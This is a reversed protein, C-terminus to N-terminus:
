WSIVHLGHDINDSSHPEAHVSATARAAACSIAIWTPGESMAGCAKADDACAESRKPFVAGSGPSCLRTPTAGDGLLLTRFIAPTLEAFGRHM